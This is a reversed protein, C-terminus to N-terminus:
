RSPWGSRFFSSEDRLFSGQPFMLLIETGDPSLGQISHSYGAPLVSLDGESVDGIFITGNADMITVRVNGHLLYAWQDTTNCHLEHYAGVRLQVKVGIVGRASLLERETVNHTWGGEQVRDKVLDFSYWNHVADCHDLPLEQTNARLGILATAAFVATGVKLSEWHDLGFEDKLENDLDIMHTRRNPHTSHMPEAFRYAISSGFVGTQSCTSTALLKGQGAM